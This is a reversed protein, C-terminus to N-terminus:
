KKKPSAAKNATAKKPSSKADKKDDKQKTENKNPPKM